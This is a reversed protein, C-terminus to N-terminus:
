PGGSAEAPLGSSAAAFRPVAPGAPVALSLTSMSQAAMTPRFWAERGVSVRGLQGSRGGLEIASQGTTCTFLVAPGSYVRVPSPLPIRITM